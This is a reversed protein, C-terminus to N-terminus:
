FNDSPQSCCGGFVPGTCEPVIDPGIEDLVYWNKVLDGSEHTLHFLPPWVPGTAQRWLRQINNQELSQYILYSESDFLKIVFCFKFPVVFLVTTSRQLSSIVSVDPSLPKLRRDRRRKYQM